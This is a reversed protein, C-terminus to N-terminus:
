PTATAIMEARTSSPMTVEAEFARVILHDFDLELRLDHGLQSAGQDCRKSFQARFRVLIGNRGLGNGDDANAQGEALCPLWHQIQRDLAGTV